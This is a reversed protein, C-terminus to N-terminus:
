RVNAIYALRLAASQRLATWTELSIRGDNRLGSIRDFEREIAKGSVRALHSIMRDEMARVNPM